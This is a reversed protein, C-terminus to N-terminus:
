ELGKKIEEWAVAGLGDWKYMRSFYTEAKEDAHFANLVDAATDDKAFGKRLLTHYTRTSLTGLEKLEKLTKM